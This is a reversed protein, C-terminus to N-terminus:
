KTLLSKPYKLFKKRCPKARGSHTVAGGPMACGHRLGRTMAFWSACIEEDNRVLWRGCPAKAERCPPQRAYRSQPTEVVTSPNGPGTSHYFNFLLYTGGGAPPPCASGQLSGIKTVTGRTEPALTSLGPFCSTYHYTYIQAMM